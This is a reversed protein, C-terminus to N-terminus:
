RGADNVKRFTLSLRRTRPRKGENKRKPIEHQWQMRAPGDLAVASCRELPLELREGNPGHFVMAWTECLSVTVIAGLFCEVCDKHKAIGQNGVYENVIVQDPLRDVLGAALLRHALGDLWPPLPGLRGKQDVKRKKYDYKWGYHQVRRALDDLWPQADIREILSAEEDASLFDRHASLGSPPDGSQAASRAQRKAAKVDSASAADGPARRPTHSKAGKHPKASVADPSPHREGVSDGLEARDGGDHVWLRNARDADRAGRPLPPQELRGEISGHSLWRRFHEPDFQEDVVSSPPLFLDLQGEVRLRRMPEDVVPAGRGAYDLEVDDLRLRRRLSQPFRESLKLAARYIQPESLDCRYWRGRATGKRESVLAGGALVQVSGDAFTWRWRAGAEANWDAPLSEPKALAWTRLALADRAAPLGRFQMPLDRYGTLWGSLMAGTWWVGPPMAPLDDKWTEFQEAAPRLLLLQLALGVPNRVGLQPDIDARNRLLARTHEAIEGFSDAVTGSLRQQVADLVREPQWGDRLRVDALVDLAASWMLPSGREDDSWRWPLRRWWPAAEFAADSWGHSSFCACLLDLWPDIAPVAWLAMAAAGRMSNWRSPPLCPRHASPADSVPDFSPRQALLPQGPEGVNAFGRAMARLQTAQAATSVAFSVVASLPLPGPWVVARDSRRLESLRMGIWQAGRLAMVDLDPLRSPDFWVAVVEKNEEFECVSEVGLLTAGADAGPVWWEDALFGLWERQSVAWGLRPGAARAPDARDGAHIPELLDSQTPIM